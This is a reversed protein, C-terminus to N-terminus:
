KTAKYWGHMIAFQEAWKWLGAFLDPGSPWTLTCSHDTVSCALVIGIAGLGSLVITAIRNLKETEATLFPAYKSAKLWQLFASLLAAVAVQTSITEM